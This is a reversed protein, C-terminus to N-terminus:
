IIIYVRELAFMIM